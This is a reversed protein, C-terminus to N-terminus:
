REPLYPVHGFGEDRGLPHSDLSHSYPNFSTASTRIQLAAQYVNESASFSRREGSRRCRRQDPGVSPRHKRSPLHQFSLKGAASAESAWPRRLAKSQYTTKVPPAICLKGNRQLSWCRLHWACIAQAATNCDDSGGYLLLFCRGSGLRASARLRVRQIIQCPLCEFRRSEESLSAVDFFRRASRRLVGQELAVAEMVLFLM